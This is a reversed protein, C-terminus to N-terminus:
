KESIRQLGGLDHGIANKEMIKRSIMIKNKNSSFKLNETKNKIIRTEGSQTLVITFHYFITKSFLEDCHWYGNSFLQM